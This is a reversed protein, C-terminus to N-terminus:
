MCVDDDDDDDNVISVSPKVDRHVMGVEHMAKLLPLMVEAVRPDIQTTAANDLYIKM